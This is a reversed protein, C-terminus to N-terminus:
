VLSGKQECGGIRDVVSHLLLTDAPGELTALSGILVWFTIYHTLGLSWGKAENPAFKM